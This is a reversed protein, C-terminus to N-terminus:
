DDADRATVLRKPAKNRWAQEILEKVRDESATALNARVGVFIRENRWVVEYTDPDAAAAATATPEDVSLIAHTGGNQIVVFGKDRVKFSPLRFHTGEEVEPFATACSRVYDLTIM